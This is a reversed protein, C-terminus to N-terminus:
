ALPKGERVENQNLVFVCAARRIFIRHREGPVVAFVFRIGHTVVVENILAHPRM